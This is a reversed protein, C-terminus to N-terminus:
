IGLCSAALMFNAIRREEQESKTRVKDGKLQWVSSRLKLFSECVNSVDVFAFLLRSSKLRRQKNSLIIRVDM